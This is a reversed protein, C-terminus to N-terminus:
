LRQQREKGRTGDSADPPEASLACHELEERDRLSKAWLIWQREAQTLGGREELNSEIHDLPSRWPACPACPGWFAGLLGVPKAAHSLIDANEWGKIGMNEIRDLSGSKKPWPAKGGVGLGPREFGGLNFANLGMKPWWRGKPVWSPNNLLAKACFDTALSAWALGAGWMAMTHLVLMVAGGICGLISGMLRLTQARAFRSQPTMAGKSWLMLSLKDLPALIPASCAVLAARVVSGWCASATWLGMFVLGRWLGAKPGVSGFRAGWAAAWPRARKDLWAQGPYGYMLSLEAKRAAMAMKQLQGIWREKSASM